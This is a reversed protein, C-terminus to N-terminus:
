PLPATTDVFFIERTNKTRTYTKNMVARAKSKYQTCGEFVELNGTLQVGLADYTLHLLKRQYTLIPTHCKYIIDTTIGDEQASKGIMNIMSFKM